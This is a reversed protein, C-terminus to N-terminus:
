QITDARPDSLPSYDIRLGCYNVPNMNYNPFRAVGANEAEELLFKFTAWFVPPHDLEDIAVHAMEHITVFMLVDLPHIIGDDYDSSARKGPRPKRDRLCLAMLAGKDTTFSTDGEPDFPSNETLNDPNYRALLHKVAEVREPYQTAVDSSADKIYKNKLHRMIGIVRRNIQALTDAADSPNPYSDHVEYTMGDIPSKIPVTRGHTFRDKMSIIEKAIVFVAVAVIVIVIALM